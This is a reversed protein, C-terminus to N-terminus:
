CEGVVRKIAQNKSFDWGWITVGVNRNKADKCTKYWITKSADAGTPADTPEANGGVKYASAELYWTEGSKGAESLKDVSDPYGNATDPQQTNYIQAKDAVNKMVGQSASTKAQNQIGNYAILSIVTLIAIIVIVILLEVLTFGRNKLQKTTM